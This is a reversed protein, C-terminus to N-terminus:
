TEFVHCGWANGERAVGGLLWKYRYWINKRSMNHQVSSSILTQSVLLIFFNDVIFNFLKKLDVVKKQQKEM